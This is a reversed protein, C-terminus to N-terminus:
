RVDAMGAKREQRAIARRLARAAARDVDQAAYSVTRPGQVAKSRDCAIFAIMDDLDESSSKTSVSAQHTEITITDDM